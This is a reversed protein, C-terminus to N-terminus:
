IINLQAALSEQSDDLLGAAHKRRLNDIEARVETATVHRKLGYHRRIIKQAQQLTVM